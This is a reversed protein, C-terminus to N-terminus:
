PRNGSLRTAERTRAAADDTRGLDTLITAQLELSRVLDLGGGDLERFIGTAYVAADLAERPRGLLQLTSALDRSTRADARRDGLARFHFVANRYADVAERFRGVRVHFFGLRHWGDAVRSRNGLENHVDLSRTQVEIAEDYRALEALVDAQARWVDALRSRDSDALATGAEEYATLAADPLNARRLAAGLQALATGTQEQDGAARGLDAARRLIEVADDTRRDRLYAIGAATWAASEGAPDGAAGYLTAARRAADAAEAYRRLANLTGALATLAAAEGRRDGAARLLAAARDFEAVADDRRHLRLLVSGLGARARGEGAGDAVAQFHAAAEALADAAPGDSGAARHAAALDTLTRAIAVRNGTRRRLDLSERLAERAARDRGLRSLVVGLLRLEEALEAGGTERRIAVAERLLRAADDWREFGILLVADGHLLAALPKRHKAPVRQALRRYVSRAEARVALLAEVDGQGSRVNGLADLARFLPLEAAPEQVPLRRRIEVAETLADAAEDARDASVLHTGLAFLCDALDAAHEDDDANEVLRRLIDAAGRCATAAEGPSGRQALVSAETRLASALLPFATEANDETLTRLVAVAEHIRDAAREHDSQDSFHVAATSLADALEFRATLTYAHDAGFMRTLAEAVARLEATGDDARGEAMLAHAREVRSAFSEPFAQPRRSADLRSAPVEIFAVPNSPTLTFRRLPEGPLALCGERSALRVARYFLRTSDASRVPGVAVRWELLPLLSDWATSRELEAAAMVLHVDLAAGQSAVQRLLTVLDRLHPPLTLSVDVILLLPRDPATRRRYLERNLEAIVFRLQEPRALLEHDSMEHALFAADGLPDDGLGLRVVEARIHWATTAIQRLVNQRRETDGLVLGHPAAEGLTDLLIPAGDSGPGLVTKTRTAASPDAAPARPPDERREEDWVRLWARFSSDGEAFDVPSYGRSPAARHVEDSVLVALTAQSGSLPREDLMRTARRVAQGSFGSGDREVVGMDIAARLPSPGVATAAWEALQPVIRNGVLAPHVGGALVFVVGDGWEGVAHAGRGAGAYGLADRLVDVLARRSEDRDPPAFEAAIVVHPGPGLEPAYGGWLATWGTRGHPDTTTIHTTMSPHSGLPAREDATVFALVADEDDMRNRLEPGFALETAREVAEGRPSRDDIPVPGASLVVGLRRSGGRLREALPVCVREVFANVDVPEALVLVMTNEDPGAAAVLPTLGMDDLASLLMAAVEDVAVGNVSRAVPAGSTFYALVTRTEAAPGDVEPLRGARLLARAAPGIRAFERGGEEITRPGGPAALLAAFREAPGGARREIEASVARLVARTHQEAPRPLTALLEDQVGPLFAYRGDEGAVPRLLGSLLVEALQAPGSGGLVRQQILRMVPLSPESVAVHAALEAAEPSASALFRRVRDEIPLERERTVPASRPADAPFTAVATPEPGGATLLRAWGAFWRPAFHLVPVHLGAPADGDYPRFALDRNAAAPRPLTALGPLAPAATRRWLREPLPQLIATPGAAAWRRLARRAGDEWWHPGSCDSLVLVAHRGSPDLLASPDRTRGAVSVKGSPTLLVTRVDRFAGQWVLTRALERALPRWLGMTLGTDVVLTLRLWREPAPALVPSWSATDAIRAATAEEDLMRATRSPVRQKLPRLARQVARADSLMPATPVLVPLAEGGRAGDPGSRHLPASPERGPPRPPAPPPRPPSDAGSGRAVPEAPAPRAPSLHAALWLMESLEVPDPEPGVEALVARFRDITM